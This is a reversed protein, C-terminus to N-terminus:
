DDAEDPDNDMIDVIDYVENESLMVLQTGAMWSITQPESNDDYDVTVERGSTLVYKEQPMKYDREYPKYIDIRWHFMRFAFGNSILLRHIGGFETKRASIKM